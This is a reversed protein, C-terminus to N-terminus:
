WSIQARLGFADIDEDPRGGVYDVDAMTYNASFKFTRNPYFNLALTTEESEGQFGVNTLKTDFGQSLDAASHRVAVEWANKSINPRDFKGDKWKFVRSEGTLFLGAEVYYADFERDEGARPTVTVDFLEGSASFPGYIFAAQLNHAAWDDAALSGSNIIAPTGDIRLAARSSFGVSALESGRQDQQGYAYGFFLQEDANKNLPAWGFTATVIQQDDQATDASNEAITDGQFAAAYMFQDAFNGNIGVGQRRSFKAGFLNTATSREMYSIWRSSSQEEMGFAGYFQGITITPGFGKYKLFADTVANSTGSFDNEVKFEWEEGIKAGIGLRVRRNNFGDDFTVVPLPDKVGAIVKGSGALENESYDVYDLQIRGGITFENKGSKLKPSGDKLSIDFDDNAMVPASLAMMCAVAIGSLSMLKMSKM